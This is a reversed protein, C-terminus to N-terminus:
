GVVGYRNRGERVWGRFEELVPLMAIQAIVPAMEYTLECAKLDAEDHPHDSGCEEGRWSQGGPRTPTGPVTPRPGKGLGYLAMADSSIGWCRPRRHERHAMMRDTIWDLETNM